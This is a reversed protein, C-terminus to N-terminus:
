LQRASESKDTVQGVLANREIILEKLKATEAALQTSENVGSLQFLYDNVDKLASIENQIKQAVSLEFNTKAYEDELVSIKTTVDILSQNPDSLKNSKKFSELKDESNMLEANVSNLTTDLFVLVSNAAESSKEVDYKNFQEALHNAIDAAKIANKDTVKLVVTNADVNLPIVTLSKIIRLSNIEPSNLVFYYGNSNLEGDESTINFDGRSKLVLSGFPLNISKGVSLNKIIEKNGNYSFSINYNGKNIFDVLIPQNMISSDKIDVSVTFPTGSYLEFDLVRGKSFYSIGIDMSNVVRQALVQSRILEIDGALKTANDGQNFNRQGLVNIPQNEDNSLKLVTYAEYSPATYRIYVFAILFSVLIFLALWIANKRAIVSFLRFDFDENFAGIKKRAM